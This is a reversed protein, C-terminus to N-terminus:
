RGAAQLARARAMEWRLSDRDRFVTALALDRDKRKYRVAGDGDEPRGDVEVADWPGPFGSRAVVVDFHQTWFFPVHHFPRDAGLLNLAAQRGQAEAVAWHEVRIRRSAEEPDPYAAVDGVAYVDAVSTELNQDVVIGGEVALGASEALGTRPIAGAAVLVVDAPLREGNSLLVADETVETVTQELHFRVGHDEHVSRLFRGLREGLARALPVREPAVVDVELERARLAAAAEMGLFGAGVVVARDAKEAAQRLARCDALSRLTRVRAAGSGGLSLRRADSGLALVLGGFGLERGDALGVVRRDLHLGSVHARVWEIDMGALDEHSRLPLWEEPASGALYDKSLNPRDYPADADADVVVVRGRHGQRRLTLAATTGAAGGGVIVVDGPDRRPSPTPTDDIEEGVRVVGDQVRVVWRRLPDLAPPRVLAGSALDFAAHHWPCHITGEGVCGDALPGGYHPCEGQVAFVDDGQRVLLVLTDDVVGRVPEGEVLDDLPLGATLDPLNDLDPGDHAM